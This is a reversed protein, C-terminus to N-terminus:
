IHFLKMANASTIEAVDELSCNHIQAIKEAILLIYGSENRKGRYPVPALFPSDTELVMNELSIQQIVKDLGSNKFTAIGGIGLKFGLENIIFYAQESTGTFAHFIGNLNEGKYMSLIDFIEDISERAHIIIPLQYEISLKIQFEFAKKQFEFFTKDWYLDIGTEGIGYYTETNLESVVMQLETEFNNKVSTPHLGILPYLNEPFKKCITKLDNVTGSDINPLVMKTVGQSIANEIIEKRDHNFNELYLHTHTDIFMM